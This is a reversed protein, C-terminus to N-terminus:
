SHLVTGDDRVKKHRGPEAKAATGAPKSDGRAKDADMSAQTRRGRLILGMALGVGLAAAATALPRRFALKQLGGYSKQAQVSAAELAEKAGTEAQRRTQELLVVAEDLKARMLEEGDELLQSMSGQIVDAAEDLKARVIHSGDDILDAMSGQLRRVDGRVANKRVM